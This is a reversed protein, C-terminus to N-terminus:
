KNNDELVQHPNATVSLLYMAAKINSTVTKEIVGAGPYFGGWGGSRPTLEFTFAFIKKSEYAWDCTDGTAVYLDSSKKGTYGTIKAMEKTMTKFAKLDNADPIDEDAGGWPYLVLESYSHYSILTKLNNRSEVFKKISQSEPESFASAGCYTDSWTSHSSGSGGWRFAYNRNLDVGIEKDPNVRMNKRHWKYRGTSIDYEAGDANLMPIIYIDLTDIYKKVDPNTRNELLWVAYLLPVEVSLHERAHHNGIFVAGPKASAQENKATTNIRLTWIDRKEITKGISFLSAIDSNEKTIKQLVEIMENYNHYAADNPPFDKLFQNIYESFSIKKEIVFGKEQLIKVCNKHAIGSVKDKYIEVIDFGTELIKTREKSNSALVTAWYKNDEKFVTKEQTEAVPPQPIDIDKLNEGSIQKLLQNFSIKEDDGVNTTQSVAFYGFSVVLSLVLLIRKM